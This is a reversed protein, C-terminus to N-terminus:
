AEEKKLIKSDVIFTAFPFLSAALSILTKGMAWKKQNAVFLVWLCYMIFLIGHVMGVIKNPLVIDYMYKMPMTLAFLLYSIGEAIALVRLQGLRTKLNMHSYNHLQM